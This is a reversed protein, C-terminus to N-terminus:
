NKPRKTNVAPGVAYSSVTDPSFPVTINSSFATTLLSVWKDYYRTLTEQRAQRKQEPTHYLRPRGMSTTATYSPHLSNGLQSVREFM